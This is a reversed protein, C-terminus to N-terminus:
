NEETVFYRDEFGVVPKGDLTVRAERRTFPSRLMHLRKGNIQM